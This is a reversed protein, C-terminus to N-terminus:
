GRRLLPLVQKRFRGVPLAPWSVLSLGLRALGSFWGGEALNEGGRRYNYRAVFRLYAQVRDWASLGGLYARTFEELGPEARGSRRALTTARVYAIAREDTRLGNMTIGRGIRIRMLRRPLALIVDTDALRQYVDLDEHQIDRYGGVELVRRKRMVVSPQILWIMKGAARRSEFETRNVPGEDYAGVTRGSASMRWGFSGLAAPTSDRRLYEVQEEFRTKECVDDADMRAVWEARCEALGRNMARSVGGHEGRIIRIRADQRAYGIAIEVSRDESGDDVIVFEFDRFTQAQVSEIAAGLYAEGNFVPMVVSLFTIAM